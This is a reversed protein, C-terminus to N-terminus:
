RLSLSAGDNINSLSHQTHTNYTGTSTRVSCQAPIHFPRDNTFPVFVADSASTENNNRRATRTMTEAKTNCQRHMSHHVTKQQSKKNACTFRCFQTNNSCKNRISPALYVQQLNTVILNLHMLLSVTQLNATTQM